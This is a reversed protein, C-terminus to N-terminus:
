RVHSHVSSRVVLRGGHLYEKVTAPRESNSSILISPTRHHKREERGEGRSGVQNEKSNTIFVCKGRAHQKPNSTSIIAKQRTGSCITLLTAPSIDILYSRTRDECRTILSVRKGEANLLHAPDLALRGQHATHRQRLSKLRDQEKAIVARSRAVKMMEQGVRSLDRELPSVIEIKIGPRSAIRALNMLQKTTESLYQESSM